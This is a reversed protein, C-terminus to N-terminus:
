KPCPEMVRLHAAVWARFKPDNEVMEKDLKGEGCKRDQNLYAQKRQKYDAKVAAMYVVEQSPGFGDQEV